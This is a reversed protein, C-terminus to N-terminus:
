AGASADSPVAEQPVPTGGWAGSLEHDFSKMFAEQGRDIAEPRYKIFVHGISPGFLERIPLRKKGSRAFVGRHGSEMSAIFANPITSKGGNLKYTVGRGKGRSPVPGQAGFAILPTRKMDASLSASMYSQSANKMTLAARVDKSKLGMDTAISQTESTRASAIGRNLARVAARPTGDKLGDIARVIQDFGQSAVFIM